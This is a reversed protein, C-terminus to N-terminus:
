AAAMVQKRRRIGYGLLAVAGVSLLLLTSPEPVPTTEPSFWGSGSADDDLGRARLAARFPGKGGAPASDFDFDSATLGALTFSVVDTMDAEFRKDGSGSSSWNIRIDYKGDGDAQYANTGLDVGTILPSSGSFSTTLSTANKSPDLNLYLGSIYESLSGDLGNADITVDVSGPTGGDDITVVVNGSLDSGSGSFEDGFTYTIVGARSQAASTMLVLTAVVVAASVRM